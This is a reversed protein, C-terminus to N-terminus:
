DWTKACLDEFSKLRGLIAEPLETPIAYDGISQSPEEAAGGMKCPAM